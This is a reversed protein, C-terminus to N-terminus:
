LLIRWSGNKISGVIQVQGFPEQSYWGFIHSILLPWRSKFTDPRSRVSSPTNFRMSPTPIECVHRLPIWPYSEPRHRSDVLATLTRHWERPPIGNPGITVCRQVSPIGSCWRARGSWAFGWSPGHFVQPSGVLTYRSMTVEPNRVAALVTVMVTRGARRLFWPNARVSRFRCGGDCGVKTCEFCIFIGMTLLWVLLFQPIM